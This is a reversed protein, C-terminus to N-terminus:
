QEAEAFTTVRGDGRPQAPRSLDPGDSIPVEGTEIRQKFQRLVERITSRSYNAALRVETGRAGAAPEFRIAYDKTLNLGGEACWEVWGAEVADMSANITTAQEKALPFDFSAAEGNSRNLRRVAFLLTIGGVVAVGIAGLALALDRFGTRDEVYQEHQIPM